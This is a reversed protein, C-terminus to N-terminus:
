KKFGDMMEMLREDILDWCPKDLIRNVSATKRCGYRKKLSKNWFTTMHSLLFENSNINKPDNKYIFKNFIIPKPLHQFMFYQDPDFLILKLKELEMMTYLINRVDLKKKIM